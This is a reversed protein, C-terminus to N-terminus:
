SSDGPGAGKKADGGLVRVAAGHKLRENGEVVVMEDPEVGELVQVVLNKELGLKLTRAEAKGDVIVFAVPENKNDLVIAKDPILVANEVRELVLTVRAFMGPLLLVDHDDVLIAEATRTRTQANLEPYLRHVEGAFHRGPYADLEVAVSMGKRVLASQSEAVAFEVVTSQPDYIEILLERPAVYYGDRVFVKSVVGDWPAKIQYDEISELAKSLDARARSVRLNATELEEAAIAGSEVLRTVRKLEEQERALADQAAQVYADAAKKRGLAVLVQGATVLDGERVRCEVIPGEAPSGMRAVRTAAVSGTVELTKSLSGTTVATTRVSPIRQPKAGPKDDGRGCGTASLSVACSAIVIWRITKM